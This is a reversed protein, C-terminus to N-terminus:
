IQHKQFCLLKLKKVAAQFQRVVAV